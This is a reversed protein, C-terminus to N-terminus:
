YKGGLADAGSPLEVKKEKGGLAEIGGKLSTGPNNPGLLMSDPVRNLKTALGRVMESLDRVEKELAAIRENDTPM